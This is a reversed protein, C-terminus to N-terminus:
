SPSPAAGTCVGVVEDYAEALADGQATEYTNGDARIRVVGIAVSLEDLAARYEPEAAEAVARLRDQAARLEDKVDQDVDGGDGLRPLAGGVAIVDPAVLRCTGETFSSEAPLPSAAATPEDDSPSSTCGVLLLLGVLAAPATRM